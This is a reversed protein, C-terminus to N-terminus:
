VIPRIMKRRKYWMLIDVNPVKSRIYTKAFNFLKKNVVFLVSPALIGYSSLTLATTGHPRINDLNEHSLTVTYVITPIVCLVTVVRAFKLKNAEKERHTPELYPSSLLDPPDSKSRLAQFHCM